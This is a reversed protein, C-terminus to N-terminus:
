DEDKNLEELIQEVDKETTKLVKQCNKILVAARKVKASLEDVTINENEIDAIIQELEEIQDEYRAKESM